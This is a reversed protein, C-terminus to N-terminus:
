EEGEPIGNIPCYIDENRGGRGLYNHTDCYKFRRDPHACAREKYYKCLPYSVFRCDWEHSKVGGGWLKRKAPTPPFFVNVHEPLLGGFTTDPEETTM